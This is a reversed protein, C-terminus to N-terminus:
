GGGSAAAPAPAELLGLPPEWLYLLLGRFAELALAAALCWAGAALAGAGGEGEEKKEV